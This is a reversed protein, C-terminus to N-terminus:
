SGFLVRALDGASIERLESLRRNVTCDITYDPGDVLAGHQVSPDAKVGTFVGDGSRNRNLDELGAAFKAEDRPNVRLTGGANAPLADLWKGILGLYDSDSMDKLKELVRKFVQDIAFNKAHLIQLRNDHDLRELERVTERELRLRADRTAEAGNREDVAKGEALIGEAETRAKNLTEEARSKAEELVKARVSELSM